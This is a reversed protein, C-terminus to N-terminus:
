RRRQPKSPRTDETFSTGPTSPVTSAPRSQKWHEPFPFLAKLANGIMTKRAGLGYDIINKVTNNCAQINEPVMSSYSKLFSMYFCRDDVSYWHIYFIAERHSLTVTFAVKDKVSHSDSLGAEKLLWLLANVSHSGSGAAQNEAVYLTGGAAESKMEIMFFPFTNSRAPQTYPRAVPHDIVNSQAYSWSSRQNNSYGVYVDPRPASLDYEYEPNNPLADTNWTANGGEGIGFRGLPFMPTRILKSIPGETNDALEEATEIVESVADDGLQSERQKLIQTDAFERVEKAMKRGSYDMSVYNNYLSGRYLPHTTGPRGSQSAVSGPGFSQGYQQSMQKIIALPAPTYICSDIAAPCSKPRNSLPSSPPSNPRRSPSSDEFLWADVLSSTLSQLSSHKSAPACEPDIDSIPRKRPRVPRPSLVDPNM